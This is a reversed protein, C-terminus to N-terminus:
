RAQLATMSLSHEVVMVANMRLFLMLMWNTGGWLWQNISCFACDHCEFIMEDGAKGCKVGCTWYLWPIFEKRLHLQREVHEM